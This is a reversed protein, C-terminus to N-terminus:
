SIIQVSGNQFMVTNQSNVFVFASTATQDTFTPSELRFVLPTNKFNAGASIHSYNVGINFVSIADQGHLESKINTAGVVGATSPRMEGNSLTIASQLLHTNLKEYQEVNMSQLLVEAPLADSGIPTRMEYNLPFRLGNRQFLVNNLPCITNIKPDNNDNVGSKLLRMQLQGNRSYNNSWKSPILNMVVSRVNEKAINISSQHISSQINQFFSSWSNYSWGGMKGLSQLQMPDKIVDLDYSLTADNLRYFSGGNSSADTNTTDAFNNDYVVDVDSNLFISIRVGGVLLLDIVESNLFGSFLNISFSFQRDCLKSTQKQKGLAGSLMGQAESYDDLSNSQVLLISALRPYNRISEYVTGTLSSSITLNQIISHIGNRDDIRSMFGKNSNAPTRNVGSTTAGQLVSFLGNLKLSQGRLLAPQAPIDFELTSYGDKYSYQNNSSMNTPQIEIFRKKAPISM